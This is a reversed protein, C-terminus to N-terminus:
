GATNAANQLPLLTNGPCDTVKESSQEAPNGIWIMSVTLLSVSANVATCVTLSRKSGAVGALALGAISPSEAIRPGAFMAIGEVMTALAASPGRTVTGRCTAVRNCTSM